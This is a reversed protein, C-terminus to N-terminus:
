RRGKREGLQATLEEVRAEAQEVQHALRVMESRPVCDHHEARARMDRRHQEREAELRLTGEELARMADTIAADRWATETVLEDRADALACADRLVAVLARLFRRLRTM